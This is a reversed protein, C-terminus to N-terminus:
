SIVAGYTEKWEHKWRRHSWLWMDPNEKIVGELYHVFKQTLAVEEEPQPFAEALSFTVNYYGRKPRSIFAFIIVTNNIIANKAPGMIFATPRNFFNFWRAKLINGPSQDAVLGLCYQTNRHSLFETSMKHASLLVTGSRSRIKKFLRDFTKNALPMYVGLFKYSLHKVATVNGWEWNFNHGLHLQVSRGQLYYKEVIEWNGTFHKEFFSDSASLLKVTEIMSDIFKHYFNKAIRKREKLTKDPFAIQLNQMVVEKRYGIIYYVIFYFFDSILYLAWLPLLSFLFLFFYIIYYM